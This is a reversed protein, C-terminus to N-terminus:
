GRPSVVERPQVRVREMRVREMRVPEMRVPEMRVRILGGGPLPRVRM